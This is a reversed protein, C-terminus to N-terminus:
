VRAVVVAVVILLIIVIVSGVLMFWLPLDGDEYRTSIYLVKEPDSEDVKVYIDDGVRLNGHNSSYLVVTDISTEGITYGVRLKYEYWKEFSMIIPEHTMEDEKVYSDLHSHMSLREEYMDRVHRYHYSDYEDLHEKKRIDDLIRDETKYDRIYGTRPICNIIENVKACLM